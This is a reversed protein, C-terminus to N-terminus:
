LGCSKAEKKKAFEEAYDIASRLNPCFCDNPNDMLVRGDAKIRYHIVFKPDSLLNIRHTDKLAKRLADCVAKVDAFNLEEPYAASELRRLLPETLSKM